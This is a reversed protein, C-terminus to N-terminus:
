LFQHKRILVSSDDGPDKFFEYVMTDSTVLLNFYGRLGHVNKIDLASQCLNYLAPQKTADVLQTQTTVKYGLEASTMDVVTLCATVPFMALKLAIPDEETPEDLLFSELGQFDKSKLHTFVELIDDTLGEIADIASKDGSDRVFKEFSDWDAGFNDINWTPQDCVYKFFHLIIDRLLNDVMGVYKMTEHAELRQTETTSDLLANASAAMTRLAKALDALNKSNSLRNRAGSLDVTTPFNKGIAVMRRYVMLADGKKVRKVLRSTATLIAEGLSGTLLLAPDFELDPLPTDSQSLKGTASDEKILEKPSENVLATAVTSYRQYRSVAASSNTAVGAVTTQHKSRDMESEGEMQLHEIEMDQVQPATTQQVPEPQRNAPANRWSNPRVPEDTGYASEPTRTYQRNSNGSNYRAEAASMPRRDSSSDSQGRGNDGYSNRRGEDRRGDRRNQEWHHRGGRMWDDPHGLDPHSRRMRDYYDFVDDRDRLWDRPANENDYRIDEEERTPRRDDRGDRRDDRRGGGQYGYGYAMDFEGVLKEFQLINGRANDVVSRTLHPELAPERKLQMATWMAVSADTASSLAAAPERYDGKDVLYAIYCLAFNVLEEFNVNDWHNDVLANYAYQRLPSNGSNRGSTNIITSCVAPLLQSELSNLSKPLNVRPIFPPRYLDVPTYPVIPSDIPYLM